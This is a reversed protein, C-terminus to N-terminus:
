FVTYRRMAFKTGPANTADYAQSLIWGINRAYYDVFYGGILATADVWNGGSLMEYKEEVVIVNSYNKTGTSTTLSYNVNQQKITYKLRITVATNPVGSVTMTGSFGPTTWTGGAALNDKIFIFEQFQDNDFGIYDALNVYRYYDSGSKRYYGASDYGATADITAAFITYTNPAVTHTLSTAAMRRQRMSRRPPAM